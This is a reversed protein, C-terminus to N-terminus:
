QEHGRPYPPLLQSSSCLHINCGQKFPPVQRSTFPFPLHLQGRCNVPALHSIIFVVGVAGEGELSARTCVECDFVVVVCIELLGVVFDFM